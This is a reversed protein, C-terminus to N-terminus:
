RIWGLCTIPSTSIKLPYSLVSIKQLISMYFIKFVNKNYFTVFANIIDRM